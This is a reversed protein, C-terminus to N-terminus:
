CQRRECLLSSQGLDKWFVVPITVSPPARGVSPMELVAGTEGCLKELEMQKCCLLIQGVPNPAIQFTCPSKKM